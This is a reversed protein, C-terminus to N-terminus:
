SQPSRLNEGCARCYPLYQYTLHHCHHCEIYQYHGCHPCHAEQAPLRKACKICRSKQVRNAAQIRPNFIWAQALKIIGFGLAPILFIYLYSVLFLLQGFLAQVLQSLANFIINIRLLEFAKFLLPLSFIVLLHWSLLALLGYDRREAYRHIVTAIALLPALFIIQLLLQLAPYWFLSRQYGQAVQEFQSRDALLALFSRSAPQTILTQELGAIAQRNTQITAQNAELKQRAQDAGVDTIAQDRSQGAIQELLSSDYQERIKQNEAELQNITAQKQNISVLINSYNAKTIQDYREAYQLCLPSASGLRDRQSQQYQSTLSLFSSPTEMGIRVAQSVLKFAQNEAKRLQPDQYIQWDQYCPYSESAMLPWRGIESLGSFVNVLIFIDIVIIVVLSVKNLPENNITRSRRFASGFWRKLRSWM